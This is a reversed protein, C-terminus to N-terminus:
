WGRQRRPARCYAVHHGLKRVQRTHVAMTATRAIRMVRQNGPIASTCLAASLCSLSILTPESLYGPFRGPTGCVGSPPAATVAGSRTVEVVCHERVEAVWYADEPEDYVLGM